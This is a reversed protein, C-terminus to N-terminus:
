KSLSKKEEKEIHKIILKEVLKSRDICNEEFFALFKEYNEPSVSFSVISNDSKAKKKPM